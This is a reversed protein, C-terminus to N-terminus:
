PEKGTDTKGKRAKKYPCYDYNLFINLFSIETQENDRNQLGFTAVKGQLLDM